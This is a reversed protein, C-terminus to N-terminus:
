GDRLAPPAPFLPREEGAMRNCAPVSDPADLPSARRPEQVTRGPIAAVARPPSSRGSNWPNRPGTPPHTDARSRVPVPIIGAARPSADIPPGPCPAPSDEVRPPGALGLTPPTCVPAPGRAAPASHFPTPLVRRPEHPASSGMRSTPRPSPQRCTRQRSAVLATIRDRPRPLESGEGPPGLRGLQKPRLVRVRAARAFRGARPGEGNLARPKTFDGSRVEQLDEPLTIHNHLRTSEEGATSRSPEGDLKSFRLSRFAKTLWKLRLIGGARLPTAVAGRGPESGTEDRPRGGQSPCEGGRGQAHHGRVLSRVARSM